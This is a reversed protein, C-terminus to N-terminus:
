KKEKGGVVVIMDTIGEGQTWVATLLSMDFASEELKM